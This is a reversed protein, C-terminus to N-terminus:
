NASIQNRLADVDARNMPASADARYVFVVPVRASSAEGLLTLAVWGPNAFQGTALSRSSAGVVSWLQERGEGQLWVIRTLRDVRTQNGIRTADSETVQYRYSGVPGVRVRSQDKVTSDQARERNSYSDDGRFGPLTYNTVVQEGLPMEGVWHTCSNYGGVRCYRESTETKGERLTWPYKARSNDLAGLEFYNKANSAEVSSLAILPMLTGERQNMISSYRYAGAARYRAYSVDKGEHMLQLMGQHPTHNHMLFHPNKAVSEELLSATRADVSVYLREPGRAGRGAGGKAFTEKSVTVNVGAQRAASLYRGIISDAAVDSIGGSGVLAQLTEDKSMHGFARLLRESTLGEERLIRSRAQAEAEGHFRSLETKAASELSSLAHARRGVTGAQLAENLARDMSDHITSLQENDLIRLMSDVFDTRAAAGENRELFTKLQSYARVNPSQYGEQVRKDLRERIRNRAGENLAGARSATRPSRVGGNAAPAAGSAPADGGKFLDICQESSGARASVAVSLVFSALVASRIWLPKQLSSSTQSM